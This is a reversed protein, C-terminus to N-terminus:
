AMVLTQRENLPTSQAGELRRTAILIRPPTGAKCAYRIRCTAMPGPWSSTKTLNWGGEPRANVKTGTGAFAMYIRSDEEESSIALALVERETLQSLSKM